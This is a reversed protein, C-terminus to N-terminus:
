AKRGAVLMQSLSCFFVGEADAEELDTHWRRLEDETIIGAKVAEQETTDAVMARRALAYDTSYFPFMEILIDSMGQRKFLRYLQRGSYGNYLHGEAWFRVLRREIDVEATDTSMTGWDTDLVVIWGDSKTVRTMEALAQVPNLLHQFLRESRCSDFYGPGFPLLMADAHRHNVWASVGAEKARQDAEAIMAGDYDVGLVQGTPGVLSALPITDTAPGCGIDLVKHGAEIRMLTYSHRKVQDAIRAGMRLYEPDVYGKPKSM